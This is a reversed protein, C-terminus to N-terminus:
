YESENFGYDRLQSAKNRWDKQVKVWLELFVKSGLLNEIDVRARSGVEKLMKGQKGIVIGKQSDREVVITAMVNITDSNDMKKISDIVVAVSHPIEERTLHLVKERVLESIIFREPHDTVQDAPYFQPGEPLHEKIQELLTDVNNGELASIPVVAAFPYLQQYKEIIPLLDDPHMADIKNVVLFVPTKVSQLKEIIFEDGRGYGETANIMFLILDVEKLTNTAVKMMFDGLKHKPKHIGPTDIFIMQSDNQTLVGQVKNRTTQPKDSMIAIKQGIVRNLFTSKGVNPRGIISIFGSKYGKVQTDDFLKDM